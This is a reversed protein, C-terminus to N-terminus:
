SFLLCGGSLKEPPQKHMEPRREDDLCQILQYGQAILIRITQCTVDEDKSLIKYLPTFLNVFYDDQAEM